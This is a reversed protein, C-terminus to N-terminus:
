RGPALICTSQIMGRPHDLVRSPLFSQPEQITNDQMPETGVHDITKSIPSTCARCDTTNSTLPKSSAVAGNQSFHVLDSVAEMAPPPQQHCIIKHRPLHKQALPWDWNAVVVLWGGGGNQNAPLPPNSTKPFKPGKTSPTKKGQTLISAM